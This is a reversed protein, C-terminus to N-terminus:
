AQEEGCGDCGVECGGRVRAAAGVAAAEAGPAAEASAPAPPPAAAAAPAAAAPLTEAAACGYATAEAAQAVFPNAFTRLGAIKGHQLAIIEGMISVAIEAPKNGGLDLGVPTFVRSLREPPVGSEALKSLVFRVKNRSGIMGIYAVDSDIVAELADKDQLHGHTVIVVYTNADLEVLEGLKGPHGCIVQDASPISEPVAFEPRSDIVVVRFDLLKALPALKQAIHGAGAIVLTREPLNVELFITTEGGCAMGLAHEGSARLEYKVTRSIGRALAELADEKAQQEVKGGGITDISTGDALVIMKAGAKRPTSGSAEVVTVLVFSQGAASLESMKKYLEQSTM